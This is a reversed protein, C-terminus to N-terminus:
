QRFEGVKVDTGVERRYVYITIPGKSGCSGCRFARREVLQSIPEDSSVKSLDLPRGRRCPGQCYVTISSGEDRAQRLTLTAGDRTDDTPDHM